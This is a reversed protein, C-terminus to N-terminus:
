GDVAPKVATSEANAIYLYISMAVMYIAFSQTGAHGGLLICHVSERVSVVQEAAGSLDRQM